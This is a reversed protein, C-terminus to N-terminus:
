LDHSLIYIYHKGLYLKNYNIFEKGKDISQTLKPNLKGKKYAYVTGAVALTAGAIAVGTIVAKKVKDKNVQSKTKQENNLQKKYESVNTGKRFNRSTSLKNRNANYDYGKPHKQYIGKAVYDYRRVGWKQGKIGHHELHADSVRIVGYYESM